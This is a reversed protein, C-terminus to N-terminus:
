RRHRYNGSLDFVQRVVVEGPLFVQHRTYSLPDRGGDYLPVAAVAHELSHALLPSTNRLARWPASGDYGRRRPNTGGAPAAVLRGQPLQQCCIWLQQADLGVHGLRTSGVLYPALHGEEFRLVDSDATLGAVLISEDVPPVDLQHGATPTELTENTTRM